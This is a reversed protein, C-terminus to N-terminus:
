NLSCYNLSMSHNLLPANRSFGQVKQVVPDKSLSGNAGKAGCKCWLDVETVIM